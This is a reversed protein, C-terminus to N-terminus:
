CAGLPPRRSGVQDGARHCGHADAIGFSSLGRIGSSPSPSNTALPPSPLLSAENSQRISPGEKQFACLECLLLLSWSSTLESLARSVLLAGIGRPVRQPLLPPWTAAVARDSM